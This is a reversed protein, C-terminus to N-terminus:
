VITPARGLLQLIEQDGLTVVKFSRPGELEEERAVFIWNRYWIRELELKYIDPDFYAESPLTPTTETLGIYGKLAEKVPTNM